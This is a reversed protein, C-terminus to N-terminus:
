FATEPLPRCHFLISFFSFRLGAPFRRCLNASRRLVTAEPPVVLRKAMKRTYRKRPVGRQGQKHRSLEAQLSFLSSMAFHASYSSM